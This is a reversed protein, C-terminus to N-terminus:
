TQLGSLGHQPQIRAIRLRQYEALLLDIGEVVLGHQGFVGPLTRLDDIAFRQAACIPRM